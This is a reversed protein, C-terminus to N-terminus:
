PGLGSAAGVGDDNFAIRIVTCHIDVALSGIIICVAARGFIAIMHPGITHALVLLIFFEFAVLLLTLILTRLPKM